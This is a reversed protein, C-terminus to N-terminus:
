FSHRMGVMLGDQSSGAAPNSGTAGGSVSVAARRDNSIHGIQGYVATRKSFSYVLRATVLTSDYDAVNRYRLNMVQGDLTLAKTLPYAAGLYWMDSRPKVADGDNDRRLLGAGIKADAIKVYGGLHLREDTKSSSNLGGFVADTGGTLARGHQRDYALAVGWGPTDYKGLMSWQRCAKSDASEGPCNTGVPSPGANVADRGLSYQAGLQLAGFTGRYALANDARANPIYSDLSGIGHVAPGIIDADLMSWFLMSYQRGATVAGWPGALGVFAQRGFLRGGQGATGQDPAFGMEATFVARLGNGLDESGRFGVRSPLSGTNSPMRQLSGKGDVKNVYEVGADILGYLTVSSPPAAQAHAGSAVLSGLLGACATLAQMTTPTYKM